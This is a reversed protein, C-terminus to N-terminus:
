AATRNILGEKIAVAYAFVDAENADTLAAIAATMADQRKKPDMAMYARVYAQYKRADESVKGTTAALADQRLMAAAYEGHRKLLEDADAARVLKGSEYAELIELEEQDFDAIEVYEM